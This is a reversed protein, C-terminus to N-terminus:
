RLPAFPAFACLLSSKKVVSACLVCLFFVFPRFHRRFRITSFDGNKNTAAAAAACIISNIITVLVLIAVQKEITERNAGGSALAMRSGVNGETVLESFPSSHGPYVMERLPKYALRPM